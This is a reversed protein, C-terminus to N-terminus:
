AGEMALVRPLPFSANRPATHYHPVAKGIGWGAGVAPGDVRRGAVRRTM